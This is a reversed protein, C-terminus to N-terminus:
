WAGKSIFKTTDSDFHFEEAGLEGSRNKEIFVEIKDKASTPHWLFLVSDADQELQGSGRLDTLEPRKRNQYMMARSLQSVALVPVDFTKAIGKLAKSIGTVEEKSDDGACLLQLYDVIILDLGTKSKMRRAKLRLLAVTQDPSDDIVLPLTRTREYAEVVALKESETMSSPKSIKKYAVGSEVSLMRQTLQAETMEPSVYLVSHNRKAVSTGVQLAFASKGISPRAALIIYDGGSLGGLPDDLGDFGTKVGDQVDVGSSVRAVIGAAVDGILVERTAVSSNSLDSLLGFATEMRGTPDSTEDMMGRGIRVLDRSTSEGKVEKAYQMVNAVDPLSDLLSSIYSAGGARTLAQKGRLLNIVSLVDVREGNSVVTQIARWIMRHQEKYFDREVLTSSVTGLADEDLICAALVAAENSDDVV